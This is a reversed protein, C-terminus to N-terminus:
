RYLLDSFLNTIYTDRLCKTLINLSFEDLNLSMLTVQYVTFPFRM